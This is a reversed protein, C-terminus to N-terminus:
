EEYKSKIMTRLRALENAALLPVLRSMILLADCISEDVTLAEVVDSCNGNVFTEHLERAREEHEETASRIEPIDEDRVEPEEGECTMCGDCESGNMTCRYAM